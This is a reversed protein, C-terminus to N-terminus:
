EFLSIFSSSSSVTSYRTEIKKRSQDGTKKRLEQRSILAELTDYWAEPTDAIFGDHGHDVIEQNVGVPSVITPIGLAMYQLAKFGCKGKAWEDDPLPM